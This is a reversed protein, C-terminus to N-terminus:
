WLPLLSNGSNEEIDKSYYLISADDINSDYIRLDFASGVALSMLDVIGELPYDWNGFLTEGLFVGNKYIYFHNGTVKIQLTIWEAGDWDLSVSGDGMTISFNGASLTLIFENSGISLFTTTSTFGKLGIFLSFDGVIPLLIGRVGGNGDFELGSLKEDPGAILTYPNGLFNIFLNGTSRDLLPEGGRSLWLKMSGLDFQYDM